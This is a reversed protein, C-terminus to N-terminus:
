LEVQSLIFNTLGTSLDRLGAKCFQILIHWHMDKFIIQIFFCQFSELHNYDSLHGPALLQFYRFDTMGVINMEDGSFDTTKKPLTSNMCIMRSTRVHDNLRIKLSKPELNSTMSAVPSSGKVPMIAAMVLTLWDCCHSDYPNNVKIYLISFTNHCTKIFSTMTKFITIENGKSFHLTHIAQVVRSRALDLHKTHTM